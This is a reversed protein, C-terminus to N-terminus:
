DSDKEQDVWLTRLGETAASLMDPGVTHPGDFPLFTADLGAATLEQHLTKASAFPLVPDRTGHSQIIRTQKLRPWGDRWRSQCILTGSMLLLMAPPDIQGRTAVDTSLMAGQSFGGLVVMPRDSEPAIEQIAATICKTVAERADDIGPPTHDHLDSFRGAQISAMMGAMNIPWWARGDPMGMAALPGPADPFIFRFAAAAPGLQEIVPMALPALDDASAGYGHLIVVPVHPQPGGDIVVCNLDGIKRM